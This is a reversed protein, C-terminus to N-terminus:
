GRLLRLALAEGRALLGLRLQVLPLLAPFAEIALEAAGVLRGLDLPRAYFLMSAPGFVRKRRAVLAAVGPDLGASADMDFANLELIKPQTSM